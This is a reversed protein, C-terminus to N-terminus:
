EWSKTHGTVDFSACFNFVIYNLILRCLPCKSRTMRGCGGTEVNEVKLKLSGFSTKDPLKTRFSIGYAYKPASFKQKVLEVLSKALSFSVDM